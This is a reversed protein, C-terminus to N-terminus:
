LSNCCSAVGNCLTDGELLKERLKVATEVLACVCVEQKENRPGSCSLNSLFNCLTVPCECGVEVVQLAVNEFM